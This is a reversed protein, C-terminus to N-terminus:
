DGADLEALLREIRAKLELITNNLKEENVRRNWKDIAEQKSDGHIEAGCGGATIPCHMGYCWQEVPVDMTEHYTRMKLEEDFLWGVGSPYLTDDDTLDVPKDCFPCPKIEQKNSM